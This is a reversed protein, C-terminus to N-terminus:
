SRGICFGCQVAGHEVFAEQLPHLAKSGSLESLASLNKEEKVKAESLVSKAHKATFEGALGEITVINKGDAREAPYICSVVPEGDVLVTCAGCEAEDCGIKTGTLRLRERLLASLTEGPIPDFTHQIDNVTLSIRNTM